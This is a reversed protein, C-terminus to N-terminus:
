DAKGCNGRATIIAEAGGVVFSLCRKDAAIAMLAPLGEIEIERRLWALQALDIVSPRASASEPHSHWEGVYRVHHLSKQASLRLAEALGEVGRVFGTVDGVSDAPQTPEDRSPDVM